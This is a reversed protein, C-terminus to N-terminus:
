ALEIAKSSYLEVQIGLNTQYLVKYMDGVPEITLRDIVEGVVDKLKVDSEIDKRILKVRDGVKFQNTKLM